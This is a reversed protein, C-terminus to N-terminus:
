PGFEGGGGGAAGGDGPGGFEGAAAVPRAAPAAPTPAFEEAPAAAPSPAPDPKPAAPRARVPEPAPVPAINAAAAQTMQEAAARRHARDAPHSRHEHVATGGAIAATSAVVAAAKGAGVADAGQQVKWALAGARDGTNVTLWDGLRALWSQQQAIGAVLGPPFLEAVRHPAARYSRLAARCSACGDLHRRLRREQEASAEGDCAPSLLAQFGACHRGASLEGFRDLFRRRGETLSRNV